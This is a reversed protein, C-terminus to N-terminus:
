ARHYPHNTLISWARYLQEVLIVRVLPHPLTMAGLSWRFDAQELCSETLGDPGGILFSVDRGEAMWQELRQSIKETSWNRGSVDLAVICANEPVAALLSECEQQRARAVDPNKGRHALPIERLELNFTRPMRRSYESWAETVWGPMRQGVAAVQLHM